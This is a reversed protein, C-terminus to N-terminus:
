AMNSRSTTQVALTEGPRIAIIDIFGFLDQRIRMHPNFHEVIAVTYGADRLAKLSLTTPSTSM